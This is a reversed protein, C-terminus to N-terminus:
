EAACALNCARAAWVHAHVAGGLVEPSPFSRRHAPTQGTWFGHRWRVSGIANVMVVAIAVSEHRRARSRGGRRLGEARWARCREAGPRCAPLPNQVVDSWRKRNSEFEFSSSITRIAERGCLRAADGGAATRRHQQGCDACEPQGTAFDPAPRASALPGQRSRPSVFWACAVRIPTRGADGGRVANLRKTSATLAM